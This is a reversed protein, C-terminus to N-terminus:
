MNADQSGDYDQHEYSFPDFAKDLVVDESVDEVEVFFVRDQKSMFKENALTKRVMAKAFAKALGAVEKASIGNITLIADCYRERLFNLCMEPSETKKIRDLEEYFDGVINPMLKPLRSLVSADTKADSIVTELFVPPTKFKAVNVLSNYTVFVERIAHEMTLFRHDGLSTPAELAVKGDVLDQYKRGHSMGLYELANVSASALDAVQLIKKHDYKWSSKDPKKARSSVPELVKIINKLTDAYEETYKRQAEASMNRSFGCKSCATLGDGTHFDGKPCRLQYYAMIKAVLSRIKISKRTRAEDLSDLHSMLVGCKACKIDKLPGDKKAGAGLQSKTYFEGGFSFLTWSHPNGSEDFVHTAPVPTRMPKYGESIDLSNFSRVRSTARVSMVAADARLNQDLAARYAASLKPDITSRNGPTKASEGLQIYSQLLAYASKFQGRLLADTLEPMPQDNKKLTVVKSTAERGGSLFGGVWARLHLNEDSLEPGARFSLFAEVDKDSSFKPMHAYLKKGKLLEPPSRGAVAEFEKRTSDPTDRTSLRIKGTLLLFMRAFHYVPDVEVLRRTVYLLNEKPTTAISRVSTKEKIATYYQKLKGLLFEPSMDSVEVLYDRASRMLKDFVYSLSLSPASRGRARKDIIEIQGRFEEATVIRLLFAHVLVMLYIKVRVDDLSVNKRKSRVIDADLDAVMPMVTNIAYRVLYSTPVLAKFRLGACFRYVEGAIIRRYENAESSEGTDPGYVDQDGPISVSIYGSCANCYTVYIDDSSVQKSAWKSLASKIDGFPAKAIELRTKEVVHPCILDLKCVKCKTPEDLPKANPTAFKEVAALAAAQEERSRAFELEKLATLHACKNTAKRKAAEDRVRIDVEVIKQEDASLADLILDPQGFEVVKRISKLKKVGLKREIADVLKLVRVRKAINEKQRLNFEHARSRDQELVTKLENLKEDTGTVIYSIAQQLVGARYLDYTASLQTTRPSVGLFEGVVKLASEIPKSLEELATTDPKPLPRPVIKPATQMNAMVLVPGAGFAFEYSDRFQKCLRGLTAQASGRDLTYARIKQKELVKGLPSSSQPLPPAWNPQMSLAIMELSDAPSHVPANSFQALFRRPQRRSMVVGAVSVMQDEGFGRYEALPTMADTSIPLRVRMLMSALKAAAGVGKPAEARPREDVVPLANPFQLIVRAIVEPPLKADLEVLRFPGHRKMLEVFAELNTMGRSEFDKRLLEMIEDVSLHFIDATKRIELVKAQIAEAPGGGINALASQPLPPM